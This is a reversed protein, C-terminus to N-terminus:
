KAVPGDHKKPDRPKQDPSGKLSRRRWGGNGDRSQEDEEVNSPYVLRELSQTIPVGLLWM